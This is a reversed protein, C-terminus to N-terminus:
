GSFIYFLYLFRVLDLDTVGNIVNESLSACCDDGPDEGLDAGRVQASTKDRGSGGLLSLPRPFDSLSSACCLHPKRCPCQLCTSQAFAENRTNKQDLSLKLNPPPTLDEIGRRYVSGNGEMELFLVRKTKIMLM